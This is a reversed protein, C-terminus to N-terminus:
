LAGSAALSVCISFVTFEIACIVPLLLITFAAERAPMSGDFIQFDKDLWERLSSLPPQPSQGSLRWLWTPVLLFALAFVAVIVTNFAAERTGHFGLWIVMVIWLVSTVLGAVVAPHLRSETPYNRQLPSKEM